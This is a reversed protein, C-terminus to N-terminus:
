SSKPRLLWTWVRRPGLMVFTLRNQRPEPGGRRQVGTRDLLQM